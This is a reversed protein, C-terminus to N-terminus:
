LMQRLLSDKLSFIWRMCLSRLCEKHPALLNKRKNNYSWIHTFVRLWCALVVSRLRILFCFCPLLQMSSKKKLYVSRQQKQARASSRLPPLVHKVKRLKVTIRTWAENAAAQQMLLPWQELVCFCEGVRLRWLAFPSVAPLCVMAM